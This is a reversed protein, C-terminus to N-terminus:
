GLAIFKGILNSSSRVKKVRSQEGSQTVPEQMEELLWVIIVIDHDLVKRVMNEMNEDNYVVVVPESLEDLLCKM